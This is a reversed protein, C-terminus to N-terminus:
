FVDGNQALKELEYLGIVRRYIELKACELVGICENYTAYNPRSRKAYQMVLKTICFNLDGATMVFDDLHTVLREIPPRKQPLIYPM